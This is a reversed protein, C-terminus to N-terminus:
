KRPSNSVDSIPFTSHLRASEIKTKEFKESCEEIKAKTGRRPAFPFITSELRLWKLADSVVGFFAAAPVIPGIVHKM